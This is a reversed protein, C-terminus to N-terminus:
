SVVAGSAEWVSGGAGANFRSCGAGLVAILAAGKAVRRRWTRLAPAPGALIAQFRGEMASLRAMSHAAAPPLVPMNRRALALLISAYRTPDIGGAVATRDAALEEERRAWASALWLLPNPWHITLLVCRLIRWWADGATVHALEHRLVAGRTERDWSRAEPPLLIVPRLAGVACPGPVRPHIALRPLRGAGMAAHMRALDAVWAEDDLPEADGAWRRAVAYGWGLWLGALLAGIGWARVIGEAWPLTAPPERGSETGGPPSGGDRPPIAPSSGPGATTTWAEGAASLVRAPRAPLRWEWAAPLAGLVTILAVGLFGARWPRLSGTWPLRSLLWTGGLLVSGKLWVELLSVLPVSM